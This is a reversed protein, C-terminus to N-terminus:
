PEPQNLARHIASILLEDAFPKRLYAVVGLRTAQDRGAADEHATMLIVPITAGSAALHESLMLGSMGGLRVDLVLCGPGDRAPWHLFEESSRFTEVRFGASRLLRGLARLVSPDDDVVYVIPEDGQIAETTTM